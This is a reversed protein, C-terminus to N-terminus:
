NGDETPDYDVRVVKPAGGWRPNAFVVRGDGKYKYETRWGSDNSFQFPAFSKGTPYQAQGSPAGMIEQVQEPSMNLQLKAMKHGAPPQVGKAPAAKAPEAAQAPAPQAPQGADNSRCSVLVGTGLVLGVVLAATTATAFANTSRM